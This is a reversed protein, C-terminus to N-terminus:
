SLYVVCRGLSFFSLFVFITSLVIFLFCLSSCYIKKIGIQILSLLMRILTLRYCFPYDFCTFPRVSVVIVFLSRPLVICFVLFQVTAPESKRVNLMVRYIQSILCVLYKYVEITFFLVLLRFHDVFCYVSFLSKFLLDKKNRNTNVIVVNQNINISQYTVVVTCLAIICKVHWSLSVIFSLLYWVTPVTWFIDCQRFLEFTWNFLRV